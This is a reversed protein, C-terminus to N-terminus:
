ADVPIGAATADRRLADVDAADLVVFPEELDAKCKFGTTPGLCAWIGQGMTRSNLLDPPESFYGETAAWAVVAGSGIMESLTRQIAPKWAVAQPWQGFRIDWVWVVWGTGTLRTAKWDHGAPWIDRPLSPPREANCRFLGYVSIGDTEEGQWFVGLSEKTLGRKM